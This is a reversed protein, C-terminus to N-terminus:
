RAADLLRVVEADTVQTFDGYFRSVAGFSEPTVPCVVEDVLGRLTELADASAVPVALVVRVAGLARAVALAARATAGTALGDDVVIAVKGTLDIAPRGARFRRDRRNLERTEDRIVAAVARSDLRDAIDANFVRVGGPGLAGFALERAWPVGLKRVVLVDLPASLRKAVEAAVPVGGRVLGLVVVDDRGAYGSLGAALAEGAHRRDSFTV